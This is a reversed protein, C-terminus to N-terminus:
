KRGIDDLGQTTFAIRRARGENRQFAFQPQQLDLAVQQARLQLRGRV